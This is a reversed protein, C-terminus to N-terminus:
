KSRLRKRHKWYGTVKDYLTNKITFPLIFLFKTVFIIHNNLYLLHINYNCSKRFSIDMGKNIVPSASDDWKATFLAKDSYSAM